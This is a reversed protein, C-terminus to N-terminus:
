HKNKRDNFRKYSVQRMLFDLLQRVSEGISYRSDIRAISLFDRYGLSTKLDPKGIKSGRLRPCCVM